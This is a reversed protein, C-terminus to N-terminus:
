RRAAPQRQRDRGGAHRRAGGLEAAERAGGRGPRGGHRRLSLRDRAGGGPRVPLKQRHGPAPASVCHMPVTPLCARMIPSILMSLGVARSDDDGQWPFSDLLSDLVALAQRADQQTPKDPIDPMAPPDILYMGTAPDFGPQHLISGDPRMSPAALVGRIEEFPWHGARSLILEAVDTPPKCSVWAKARGDFKEFGAAQGMYSRLMITPVAILGITKIRGGGFTHADLLLPRVLM